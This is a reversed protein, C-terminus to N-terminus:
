RKKSRRGSREMKILRSYYDPLEQLHDLAIRGVLRMDGRTVAPHEQEVELGKRFEGLDVKGWDVGIISGIRKADAEDIQVPKM